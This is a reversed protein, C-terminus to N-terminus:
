VKVMGKLQKIKGNLASIEDTLCKVYSIAPIYGKGKCLPCINQPPVPEEMPSYNTEVIVGGCVPCPFQYKYYELDTEIIVLKNYVGKMFEQDTEPLKSIIEKYRRSEQCDKCNCKSM